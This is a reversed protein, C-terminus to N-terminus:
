GAVPFYQAMVAAFIGFVIGGILIGLATERDDGTKLMFFGAVIAAITILYYPIIYQVACLVGFTLLTRFTIKLFSNM